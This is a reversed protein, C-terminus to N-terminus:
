IKITEWLKRFEERVNVIKLEEDTMAVIRQHLSTEVHMSKKTQKEMSQALVMAEQATLDTYIDQGNLDKFKWGKIVPQKSIVIFMTILKSLNNQDLERNKQKYKEQFVFESESYEVQIEKLEKLLDELRKEKDFLVNGDVIKEYVNLKKIKGNLFFLDPTLDVKVFDIEEVVDGVRTPALMSVDKSISLISYTKSDYMIKLTDNQFKVQEQYWNNNEKDFIDIFKQGDNLEKIEIKSVVFKKM